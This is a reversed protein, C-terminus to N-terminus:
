KITRESKWEPTAYRVVELKGIESATKVVSKKCEFSWSNYATSINVPNTLDWDTIFQAIDVSEYFSVILKGTAVKARTKDGYPYYIEEGTLSRENASSGASYPVMKHPKELIMLDSALLLNAVTLLIFVRM